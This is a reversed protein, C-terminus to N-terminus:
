KRRKSKGQKYEAYHVLEPMGIETLRKVTRAKAAEHAKVTAYFPCNGNPFTTSALAACVSGKRLAFCDPHGNSCPSLASEPM